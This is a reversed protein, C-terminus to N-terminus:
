FTLCARSTHAHATPMLRSTHPTLHSHLTHTHTTPPPAGKETAQGGRGGGVKEAGEGSREGVGGAWELASGSGPVGDGGRQLVVRPQALSQM